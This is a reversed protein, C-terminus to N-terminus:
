FETHYVCQACVEAPKNTTIHNVNKHINEAIKALAANRINTDTKTLKSEKANKLKTTCNIANLTGNKFSRNNTL